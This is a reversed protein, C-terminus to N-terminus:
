RANSLKGREWPQVAVCGTGATVFSPSCRPHSPADTDAHDEESQMTRASLSRPHLKTRSMACPRADAHVVAPTRVRTMLQHQLRDYRNRDAYRGGDRCRQSPTPTWSISADQHAHIRCRVFRGSLQDHWRIQDNAPCAARPRPSSISRTPDTPTPTGRRHSEIITSRSRCEAGGRAVSAAWAETTGERESWGCAAWAGWRCAVLVRTRRGDHRRRRGLPDQISGCVAGSASPLCSRILVRRWDLAIAM